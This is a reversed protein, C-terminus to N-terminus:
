SSKSNRLKDLIQNLQDIEPTSLNDFFSEFEQFLPDSVTLLDLGKKSIQIEAARRDAKSQCRDLLGKIRLREVIRSADSMKDLMREKVLNVTVPTPYAGRLIRLVNYQQRTIQLSKFVENMKDILFHNTYIINILAKQSGSRFEKQGIDRELSM